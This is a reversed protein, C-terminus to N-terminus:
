DGLLRGLTKRDIDLLEATTGKRGECRALAWRAYSRNLEELTLVRGSFSPGDQSQELISAPLDGAGIEASTGVLVLRELLNALERVNGPWSHAALREFAERSFREVPSGPHRKRALAFLHGVLEALDERRERLPPVELRIVDLRFLLDERFTGLAVQKRLDRHTAAVIRVDIAHEKNAGVPRVM